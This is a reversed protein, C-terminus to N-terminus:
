HSRPPVRRRIGVGQLNVNLRAAILAEDGSSVVVLEYVFEDDPRRWNRVENRLAREQAETMSEVVLVEFYLQDPNTVAQQEIQRPDTPFVDQDDLGVSAADGTPYSDTTLASNIRSVTRAFKDYQGAAFLRQTRAFQPAGPYAWYPELPTLQALLDTVLAAYQESGHGPATPRSLREAAEELRCWADARLQWVTNYAHSRDVM